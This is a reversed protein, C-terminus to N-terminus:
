DQNFSRRGAPLNDKQHEELISAIHNLVEPGTRFVWQREDHRHSTNLWGGDMNVIYGNSAQSINIRIPYYHPEDAPVEVSPLKSALTGHTM